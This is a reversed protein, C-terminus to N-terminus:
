IIIDLNGIELQDGLFHAMKNVEASLEGYTYRRNEITDVMAEREPFSRGWRGIWDGYIMDDREKNLKFVRTRQILDSIM